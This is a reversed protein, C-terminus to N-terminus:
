KENTNLLRQRQNESKGGLLGSKAVQDKARGFDSLLSAETRKCTSVKESLFKRTAGIIVHVPVWYVYLRYHYVKLYLLIGDQSRVEVEMQKILDKSQVFLTDIQRTLSEAKDEDVIDYM